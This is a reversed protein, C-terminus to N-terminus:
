ALEEPLKIEALRTEEMIVQFIRQVSESHLPGPNRQVLRELIANERSADLIPLGHKRKLRGIALAAEARENLLTMLHNDLSDIKKRWDNIQM